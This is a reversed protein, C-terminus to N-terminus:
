RHRFPTVAILISQLLGGIHYGNLVRECWMSPHTPLPYMGLKPVRRTPIPYLLFRYGNGSKRGLPHTNVWPYEVPRLGQDSSRTEKKIGNEWNTGSTSLRQTADTREANANLFQMSFVVLRLPICPSNHFHRPWNRVSEVTFRGSVSFLWFLPELPEGISPFIRCILGEFFKRRSFRM